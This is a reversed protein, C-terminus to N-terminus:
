RGDNFKSGPLSPSIRIYVFCDVFESKSTKANRRCIKRIFQCFQCERQFRFKHYGGYFPNNGSVSVMASYEVFYHSKRRCISYYASKGHSSIAMPSENRVKVLLFMKRGPVQSYKCAKHSVTGPFINVLLYAATSIFTYATAAPEAVVRKRTLKILTNM